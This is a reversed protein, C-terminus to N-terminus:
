KRDGYRSMYAQSWSVTKLVHEKSESKDICTHKDRNAVQGEGCGENPLESDGPDIHRSRLAQLKHIRKTASWLQGTSAHIMPPDDSSRDKWAGREARSNERQSKHAGKICNMITYRKTNECKHRDTIYYEQLITDRGIIVKYNCEYTLIYLAGCRKMSQNKGASISLM